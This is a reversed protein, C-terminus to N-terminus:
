DYMFRNNFKNRNCKRGKNIKSPIRQLRTAEELLGEELTWM